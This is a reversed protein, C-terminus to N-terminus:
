WCRWCSWFLIRAVFALVGALIIFGLLGALIAVLGMALLWGLM